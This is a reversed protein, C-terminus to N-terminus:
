SGLQVDLGATTESLYRFTVTGHANRYRGTGGTVTLTSAPDAHSIQGTVFITGATLGLNADVHDAAPSLITWIGGLRGAKKGDAANLLRGSALFYDGESYGKAGLDVYTSKTGPLKLHITQMDSAGALPAFALTATALLAPILLRIRM